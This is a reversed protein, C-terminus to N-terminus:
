HRLWRPAGVCRVASRGGFHREARLADSVWRHPVVGEPSCSSGRPRPPRRSTRSSGAPIAGCGASRCRRPYASTSNPRPAAASSPSPRAMSRAQSSPCRRVTPTRPHSSWTRSPRAATASRLVFGGGLAFQAGIAPVCNYSAECQLPTRLDAPLDWHIAKGAQRAPATPTVTVTVDQDAAADYGSAELGGIEFTGGIGIAADPRLQARVAGFSIGARIPHSTVIHPGRCRIRTLERALTPLVTARGQVAIVLTDPVDKGKRQFPGSEVTVGTLRLLPKAPGFRSYSTRTREIRGTLTGNGGSVKMGLAGIRIARSHANYNDVRIAFGTGGISGTRTAADFSGNVPLGVGEFVTTYRFPYKGLFQGWRYDEQSVDLCDGRLKQLFGVSRVFLDWNVATVPVPAANAPAAFGLAALLM